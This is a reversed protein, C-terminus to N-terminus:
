FAPMENTDETAFNPGYARHRKQLLLVVANFKTKSFIIYLSIKPRSTMAVQESEELEM